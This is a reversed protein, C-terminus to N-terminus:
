QPPETPRTDPDDLPTDASKPKVLFPGDYDISELFLGCAPATPGARRRDRSAVIRAMDAAAWRGRGIEVCTGVVIRVMNHLFRNARITFVLRDAGNQMWGAAAVFCRYHDVDAGSQCFARFDLEGLLAKVAENMANKDLAVTVTWAYARGIALPRTSICYSYSRQRASFRANFSADVEAASLVRVDPPLLANLGRVFVSIALRSTTFFNVVQGKAHVGADTRGATVVRIPETTLRVLAQEVQGQVTRLNPQLQWGFFDTGDYELTLRVNRYTSRPM